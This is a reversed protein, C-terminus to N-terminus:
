PVELARMLRTLVESAGRVDHQGLRDGIENAWSRQAKQVRRLAARGKPSLTLLKARQHAPNDVYQALGEDVLSDAVRQVSQRALGWARAIGAVARPEEEIAALARWRATTLGAPRALEDGAESLMGNLRFLQVVLDSFADGAPTRESNVAHQRKGIM